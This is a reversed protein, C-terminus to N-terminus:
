GHFGGGLGALEGQDTQGGSHWEIRRRKPRPEVGPVGGVHVPHARRSGSRSSGVATSAPRARDDREGDGVVPGAASPGRRRRGSRGRARSGSRAGRDSSPAACAAAPARGSARSRRRRDVGAHRHLLDPGLAGPQAPDALVAAEDVRLEPRPQRQRHHEHIARDVGVIARVVAAAAGAREAQAGARRPAERRGAHDVGAAADGVLAISFWRRQGSRRQARPKRPRTKPQSTQWSTQGQFWRAAASPRGGSRARPRQRRRVGASIAASCARRIGAAPPRSPRQARATRRGGGCRGRRWRRRGRVRASARRGDTTLRRVSSGAGATASAARQASPEGASRDVLESGSRLGLGSGSGKHCARSHAVIPEFRM